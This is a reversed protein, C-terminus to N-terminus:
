KKVKIMDLIVEEKNKCFAIGIVESLSFANLYKESARQSDTLGALYSVCNNIAFQYAQEM